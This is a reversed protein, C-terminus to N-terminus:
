KNISEVFREASRSIEMKAEYDRIMSNVVEEHEQAIQSMDQRLCRLGPLMAEQVLQDNIVTFRDLFHQSLEM